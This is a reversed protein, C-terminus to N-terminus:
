DGGILLARVCLLGCGHSVRCSEGQATPERGADMRYGLRARRM